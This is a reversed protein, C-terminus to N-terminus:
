QVICKKSRNRQSERTTKCTFIEGLGARPNMWVERSSIRKRRETLALVHPCIRSFETNKGSFCFTDSGQAQFIGVWRGKWRHLVFVLVGPWM